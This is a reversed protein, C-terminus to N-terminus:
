SNIVKRLADRYVDLNIQGDIYYYKNRQPLRYDKEKTGYKENIEVEKRLVGKKTYNNLINKASSPSFEFGISNFYNIIDPIYCGQNKSIFTLIIYASISRIELQKKM